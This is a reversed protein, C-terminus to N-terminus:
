VREHMIDNVGIFNNTNSIFFSTNLTSSTSSNYPKGLDISSLERIKKVKPLLSTRKSYWCLTM